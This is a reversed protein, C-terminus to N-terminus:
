KRAALILAKLEPTLPVYELLPKGNIEGGPNRQVFVNISLCDPDKLKEVGEPDLFLPVLNPAKEFKTATQLLSTAIKIGSVFEEPTIM